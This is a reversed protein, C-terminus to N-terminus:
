TELLMDCLALCVAAEVVPVARVAVCSDHRGKIVIETNCNNVLDVTKQPRAISPTPKFAVRLLIPMGNTIGGNIGGSNNTFTKVSGNELYLQDNATSGQMSAFDFGAGFEVGKVAPIAYLLSSIKAEVGDFIADGVGKTMGFVVCEIVGGVSDLNDRAFEIEKQMEEAHSLAPFGGLTKLEEECINEYKYSKGKVSGVQSLYAYVRTNNQELYQKAIGGAICLPATMRGSFRGGGVFSLNGDKLYACYDAHSPRPKGYLDDYDASRTDKNYIEATFSGNTKGQESVGEAFVVQDLEKRLTSFKAGSPRRREMFASLKDLDIQMEPFGKCVAGIKKDHSAGFIEVSINEGKFLSM